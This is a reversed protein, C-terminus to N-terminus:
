LIDTIFKISNPKYFDTVANKLEQLFKLQKPSFQNHLHHSQRSRESVKEKILYTYVKTFKGSRKSMAKIFIKNNKDFKFTKDDGRLQYSLGDYSIGVAFTNKVFFCGEVKNKLYDTLDKWHEEWKIINKEQESLTKM